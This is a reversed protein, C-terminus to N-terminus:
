YDYLHELVVSDSAPPRTLSGVVTHLTSVPVRLAYRSRESRTLVPMAFLLEGQDPAPKWTRPALVTLMIEDNGAIEVFRVGQEVLRPVLKTFAEYRPLVVLDPQTDSAELIRLEPERVSATLLDCSARWM